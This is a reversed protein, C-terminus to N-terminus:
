FVHRESHLIETNTVNTKNIVYVVYANLDHLCMTTYCIDLLSTLLNM